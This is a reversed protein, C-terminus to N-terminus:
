NRCQIIGGRSPVLLTDGRSLQYFTLNPSLYKRDESLSFSSSSTVRITDQAIMIPSWSANVFEQLLTGLIRYAQTQTGSSNYLFISDTTVETLSLPTSSFAEGGQLVLSTHRTDLYLKNYVIESTIHLKNLETIDRTSATQFNLTSYIATVVIGMLMIGVLSEVLTLGAEKKM